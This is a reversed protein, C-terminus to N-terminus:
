ENGAMGSIQKTQEIPLEASSANVRRPDVGRINM